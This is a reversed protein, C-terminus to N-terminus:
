KLMLMKKVTSYEDAEFRYFYFGSAVTNGTNDKGDWEIIHKGSQYVDDILRRTQRGMIDYIIINVYADYPLNFAIKTRANFPNPYNQSISFYNPLQPVSRKAAGCEGIGGNVQPNAAITQPEGQPYFVKWAYCYDWELDAWGSDSGPVCKIEGIIGSGQLDGMSIYGNFTMYDGGSSIVTNFSGFDFDVEEVYDAIKFYSTDPCKVKFWLSDFVNTTAWDLRVPITTTDGGSCDVTDISVAFYEKMYVTGSSTYFYGTSDITRVIKNQDGTPSFFDFVWSSNPTTEVSVSASNSAGLALADKAKFQLTFITDLQNPYYYKGTLAGNGTYVQAEATGSSDNVLLLVAPYRTGNTDPYEIGSLYLSDANYTIYYAFNQSWFSHDVWIPISVSLDANVTDSGIYTSCSYVPYDAGGVTYDISDYDVYQQSSDCYFWNNSTYYITDLESFGCDSNYSSRYDQGKLLLDGLHIETNAPYLENSDWITVTAGLKSYTPSGYTTNADFGIINSYGLGYVNFQTQFMDVPFSANFYIPLEIPIYKAPDNTSDQAQYSFGQVTDAWVSVAGAYIGVLTDAIVDAECNGGGGPQSVLPSNEDFTQTKSNSFAVTDDVLMLLDFIHYRDGGALTDNSLQIHIETGSSGNDSIVADDGNWATDTTDIGYYSLGTESSMYIDINSIDEREESYISFESKVM